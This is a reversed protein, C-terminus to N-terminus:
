MPVTVNERDRVPCATPELGSLPLKSGAPEAMLIVSRHRVCGLRDEGRWVVVVLTAGAGRDRMRFRMARGARLAQRRDPALHEFRQQRAVLREAGVLDDLIQRLMARHPVVPRCRDRDITREIKQTVVAENMADFAAICEDGACVIVAVVFQHNKQDTLLAARDTFRGAAACRVREFRRRSGRPKRGFARQNLNGTNACMTALFSGVPHARQSPTFPTFATRAGSLAKEDLFNSM